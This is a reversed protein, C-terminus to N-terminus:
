PPPRLTLVIIFCRLQYRGLVCPVCFSNELPVLLSRITKMRPIYDGSASLRHYSYGWPLRSSQPESPNLSLSHDPEGKAPVLVSSSNM